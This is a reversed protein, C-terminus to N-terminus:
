SEAGDPRYLEAMTSRDAAGVKRLMRHVHNKVTQESLNLRAAVEKNSLGDRILRALQQQRPSLDLSKRISVLPLSVHPQAAFRFLAVSLSPPCVAEGAAVDRIARWVEAASADTLVYGLVGERVLRLFVGEDAEMGVMVVGIKPQAELLRHVVRDQSLAKSASDLVVIDPATSLIQPLVKLSYSGSGVIHIDDKKSLLRVLAERLLRNEALLFVPIPSGLPSSRLAAM